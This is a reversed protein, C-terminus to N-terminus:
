VPVVSFWQALAGPSVLRADEPPTKGVTAYCAAVFASCIVHKDTGMVFRTRTLTDIGIGVIDLWDYLEGIDLAAAACVAARQTDTLGSDVVVYDRANFRTITESRVGDSLAELTDGTTSTILGCHNWHSHTGFQIIRSEPDSGHFLFFDGAQM